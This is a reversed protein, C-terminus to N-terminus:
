RGGAGAFDPVGDPRMGFLLGLCPGSRAGLRLPTGDHLCRRGRSVGTKWCGEESVRARHGLWFLFNLEPPCFSRPLFHLLDEEKEEIPPEPGGALRGKRPPLPRPRVLFHSKLNLEEQTTLHRAVWSWQQRDAAVDCRNRPGSTGSPSRREPCELLRRWSRGGRRWNLSGGVQSPSAGEAGLDVGEQVFTRHRHHLVVGRGAKVAV